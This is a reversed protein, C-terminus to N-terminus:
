RGKKTLRSQLLQAQELLSLEFFLGYVPRQSYNYSPTDRYEGSTSLM